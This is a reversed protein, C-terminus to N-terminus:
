TLQKLLHLLNRARKRKFNYSIKDKNNKKVLSSLTKVFLCTSKLKHNLLLADAKNNVLLIINCRPQTDQLAGEVM